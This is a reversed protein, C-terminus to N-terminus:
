WRYCFLWLLSLLDMAFNSNREQREWSKGWDLCILTFDIKGIPLHIDGWIRRWMRELSLRKRVITRWKLGKRDCRHWRQSWWPCRSCSCGYGCCRLNGSNCRLCLVGSGLERALSISFTVRPWSRFGTRLRLRAVDDSHDGLSAIDDDEDVIARRMARVIATHSHIMMAITAM